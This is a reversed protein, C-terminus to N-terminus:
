GGTREQSTNAIEALWESVSTGPGTIEELTERFELEKIWAEDTVTRYYVFV